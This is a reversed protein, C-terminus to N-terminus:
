QAEGSARNTAKSGQAKKRPLAKDEIAQVPAAADLVTAYAAIIDQASWSYLYKKSADDPVAVRLFCSTPESILAGTASNHFHSGHLLNLYIPKRGFKPLPRVLLREDVHEPLWENVAANQKRSVADRVFQGPGDVYHATLILSDVKVMVCSCNEGVHPMDFCKLGSQVAGQRFESEWLARRVHPLVNMAETRTWTENFALAISQQYLAQQRELLQTLFSKPFARVFREVILNAM